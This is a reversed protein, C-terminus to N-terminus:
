LHGLFIVSLFKPNETPSKEGFKTASNIYRLGFEKVSRYSKVFPVETDNLKIHVLIYVDENNYRHIKLKSRKEAQAKFKPWGNVGFCHIKNKRRFTQNYILYKDEEEISPLSLFLLLNWLLHQLKYIWMIDNTSDTTRWEDVNM